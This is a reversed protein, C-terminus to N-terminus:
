YNTLNLQSFKMFKELHTELSKKRAEGSPKKRKEQKSVEQSQWLAIQVKSLLGGNSQLHAKASFFKLGNDVPDIVQMMKQRTQSKVTVGQTPVSKMVYIYDLMMAGQKKECRPKVRNQQNKSRTGKLTPGEGPRSLHSQRDQKANSFTVLGEWSPACQELISDLFDLCMEDKDFVHLPEKESDHQYHLVFTSHLLPTGKGYGTHKFAKSLPDDSGNPHSPKFAMM